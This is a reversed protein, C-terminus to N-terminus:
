RTKRGYGTIVGPEAVRLTNSGESVLLGAVTGDDLLAWAAVPPRGEAGEAYWDPPASVIQVINM